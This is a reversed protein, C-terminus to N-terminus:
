GLSALVEELSLAAIGSFRRFDEVNCTLLNEIEAFANSGGLARRAGPYWKM